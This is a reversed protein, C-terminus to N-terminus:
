SQTAAHEHSRNRRLIPSSPRKGEGETRLPYFTLGLLFAPLALRFAANSLFMASWVLVAAFLARTLPSGACRYNRVLAGTMVLLALLGFAGHEALMRTYETHATVGIGSAAHYAASGHPGLGLLPNELFAKLDTMALETRGTGQADRFRTSLAGGTFGDVWPILLFYAIVAVCATVVIVRFRARPTRMLLLAAVAVAAGANYLGSRSFTLASQVGLFLLLAVFLPRLRSKPHDLMTLLFALVIGLGLVSSVQNPGFGGSTIFNSENTFVLADQQQAAVTGQLTVAGLSVVPVFLAFLVWLTQRRDLPCRSFFVACCMLTMPGSLHFAVFKRALDPAQEMFPLPVSPLLLLFYLVPLAPIARGSARVAGIIALASIFYKGTEWMLPVRVMRWLVEIGAIYAMVYAVRELKKGSAAFWLGVAITALAHATAFQVSGRILLALPVHLALLGIARTAHLVPPAMDHVRPLRPATAM